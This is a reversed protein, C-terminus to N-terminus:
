VIGSYIIQLMQNEKICNATDHFLMAHKHLYSSIVDTPGYFPDKRKIFSGDLSGIDYIEKESIFCRYKKCLKDIYDNIKEYVVIDTYHDHEEIYPKVWKNLFDTIYIRKEQLWASLKQVPPATFHESILTYALQLVDKEHAFSIKEHRIGQTRLIADHFYIMELTFWSTLIFLPDRILVLRRLHESTAFIPDSLELDHSKTLRIKLNGTEQASLAFGTLACPMKKCCGPETYWECFSFSEKFVRSMSSKLYHIGSRPLSKADILLFPVPTKGSNASLSSYFAHAASTPKVSETAKGCISKQTQKAMFLQLRGESGPLMGLFALENRYRADFACTVACGPRGTNIADKTHQYASTARDAVAAARGLSSHVGAALLRFIIMKNAGWEQALAILRRAECVQGTQLKASAALLVLEARDPHQQLIDIKLMGLNIWDGLQWQTRSLELLHVDYDRDEIVSESIVPQLSSPSHKGDASDVISRRKM